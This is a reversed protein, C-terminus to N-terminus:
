SEEFRKIKEDLYVLYEEYWKEFEKSEKYSNIVMRICWITLGIFLLTLITYVIVVHVIATEYTIM